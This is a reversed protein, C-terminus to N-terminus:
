DGKRPYYLRQLIDLELPTTLELGRKCVGKHETCYNRLILSIEFQIWRLM